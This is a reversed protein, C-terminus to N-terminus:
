GANATKLANRVIKPTLVQPLIQPEAESPDASYVLYLPVGARGFRALEQAIQDNKNTWDAVMFTTDTDAFAQQVSGQSLVVRENAKCSVCWDATFDVFVAKGAAREASLADPSWDVKGLEALSQATAADDSASFKVSLPLVMGVLALALGLGLGVKGLKQRFWIALAFLLAAILVLTVGEQGAQAALVYVLWIATAFMPFALFQRFTEMWPGPKPLRALLKPSYALFLFPAAFGLALALFVVLTVGPPALLTYGLAGAMFPGTCPTAVIVALLGTFFAGRVGGSATLEQGTNQFRGGVEFVGLFNLGLLFVLLALIGVIRPDQLQFGWGALSGSAKIALVLGAFVAFMVLVGITYAWGERKAQAREAHAAKTLSLAKISIVPFVCPMVNLIIGGLFAFLVAGGFSMRKIADGSGSSAPAVVAGIDVASGDTKVTVIEGRRGAPTDFALVAEFADPTEGQWGFGPTQTIQVGNAAARSIQPASHDVITNEIPFLYPDSIEGRGAIDIVLSGDVVQAVGDLDGAVPSAAIADVIRPGWVPDGIVEDSVPLSLSLTTGEPICIDKCVLYYVEAEIEFRAGVNQPVMIEVPFLPAGEFGYNIIPGTAVPYPIPWYIEGHSAGDPLTWTIAVPEGSDGPNKWYTHWGPDLETLLAVHLSQGPMLLDQSSVLRANVRGTDVVESEAAFAGTALGMWILIVSLFYRM